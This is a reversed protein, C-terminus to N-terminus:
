QQRSTFSWQLASFVGWEISLSPSSPAAHTALTQNKRRGLHCLHCLLWCNNILNPRPAPWQLLNVTLWQFRQHRSRAVWTYVNRFVELVDQTNQSGSSKALFELGRWPIAPDRAAFISLCKWYFEWSMLLFGSMTLPFFLWVFVFFFTKMCTLRLFASLCCCVASLSFFLLRTLKTLEL